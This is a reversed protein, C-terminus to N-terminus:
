GIVLIDTINRTANSVTFQTASLLSIVTPGDNTVDATGDFARVQVYTEGLTHTITAAGAGATYGVGTIM